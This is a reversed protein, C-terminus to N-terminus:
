HSCQSLDQGTACAYASSHSSQILRKFYSWYPDAHNNSISLPYHCTPSDAGILAEQGFGLIRWSLLGWVGSLWVGARAREVKGRRKMWGNKKVREVGTSKIISILMWAQGTFLLNTPIPTRKQWMTIGSPFCPTSNACSKSNQHTLQPHAFPERSLVPSPLVLYKLLVPPISSSCAALVLLMRKTNGSKFQKRTCTIFLLVLYIRIKNYKM